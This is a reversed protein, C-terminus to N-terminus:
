RIGLDSLARELDHPLDGAAGSGPLDPPSDGPELYRWGQFPRRPSTTTRVLEPDMVIMCRRIGDAGICEELGTIKQRVQIVGRIVWYLSGGSLIEDKRKPRMRTIHISRYVEGRSACERRGRDRWAQLEEVNGIGVCLKVLNVHGNRGM